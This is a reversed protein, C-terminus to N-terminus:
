FGDFDHKEVMIYGLFINNKSKKINEFFDIKKASPDPDFTSKKSFTLFDLFLMKRPYIM